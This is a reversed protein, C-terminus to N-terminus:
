KKTFNRKIQCKIQKIFIRNIDLFIFIFVKGVCKTTVKIISINKINIHTHIISIITLNSIGKSMPNVGAYHSTSSDHKSM